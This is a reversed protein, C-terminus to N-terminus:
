FARIFSPAGGTHVFLITSAADLLGRRVHDILGAMAKATYTPDLLIGETRALPRIAEIGERTPSGYGEGLYSQDTFLDEDGVRTGIGRLEAVENAIRRARERKFSEGGSM